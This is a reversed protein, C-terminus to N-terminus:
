AAPLVSEDAPTSVSTDSLLVYSPKDMLRFHVRALYEGFIGLAFLQAGSFVIIISALFAFGPVSGGQLLYRLLVFGLVLVGFVTFAFGILSALQLPLISFGTMLNLAHVILKRITYNSRGAKRPDHRVRIGIFRSTAWTLLVDISVFSGSYSAFAKRLCTRFARFASINRATEAGMANQLTVKTIQSALDRLLGHQEREPVAYVVDYGEELKQLLRPIEEPPNQLDDDLTVIVDYRAVRIGALLANHQGYNRMLNLGRVLPEQAAIEEIVSWSDDKSSDNVFLIEYASTCEALVVKLRSVLERLTQSSNYVPVTVSVTPRPTPNM